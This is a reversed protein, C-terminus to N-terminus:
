HVSITILFFFRIRFEDTIVPIIVNNIIKGRAQKFFKSENFYGLNSKLQDYKLIELAKAIKATM